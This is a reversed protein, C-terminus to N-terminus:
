VILYDYISPAEKILEKTYSNFPNDTIISSKGYEVIKGEKLVMIYDSIKRALAINHTIFILSLGFKEQLELFLKMIKAQISVDLSATSEDAIILKPSLVLARAIAVRQIEGGSLISAKKNLFSDDNPLYVHKLVNKVRQKKESEDCNKQIDLPEKIAEYISFSKNISMRPNQFIIQINKFFDKDRIKIKKGSFKFEGKSCKELGIICKALTTKGSGSEGVIALTEGEYLEFNIDNLVETKGFKKCINEAQLLCVIGKKHCSVYRDKVFELSPAEIFCQNSAQTCRNCYPCGIQVEELKGKIGQLDKTSSMNPFSRLLGRTYPHLPNMLVKNSDGMELIKGGYLVILKDAIRKALYFDHTILLVYRDKSVKKILEIIAKKTLPDLASTPEDFILFDPNNSLAMAILVRQIQGGSLQTPYCHFKDENIGVSKLLKEGKLIAEKKSISKIRLLSEIVQNLINDTPNLIETDNQFVMSTTNWRYKEIEKETYNLINDKNVIIEGHVKGRNLNMLSLALSTKGTGSEGVIVNIENKNLSLNLNNIVTKDGYSIRLNKIEIM